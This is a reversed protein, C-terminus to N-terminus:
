KSEKFKLDGVDHTVIYSFHESVGIGTLAINVRYKKETLKQRDSKDDQTRSWAYFVEDKPTKIAFHLKAEQRNPPIDVTQKQSPTLNDENPRWWRGHNKEIIIGRLNEWEVNASVNRAICQETPTQLKPSNIFEIYASIWVSGDSFSKEETGIGVVKIRPKSQTFVYENWEKEIIWWLMLLFMSFLFIVRLRTDTFITEVDEQTFVQIASIANYIM